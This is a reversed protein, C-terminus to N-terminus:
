FLNCGLVTEFYFSKNQHDQLENQYPKHCLNYPFFLM